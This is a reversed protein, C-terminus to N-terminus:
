NGTTGRILEEDFRNGEALDEFYKIADNQAATLLSKMSERTAAQPEALTRQWDFRLVPLREPDDPKTMQHICRDTWKPTKGITGTVQLDYFDMQGKWPRGIYRIFREIGPPVDEEAVVTTAVIGVRIIKRAAVDALRATAETLRDSVRPLLESFPAADSILNAIPPGASVPTLKLRHQFEVSVRTANVSYHYGEETSFDLAALDQRTVTIKTKRRGGLHGDFPRARPFRRGRVGHSLGTQLRSDANVGVQRVM